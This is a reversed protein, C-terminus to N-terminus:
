INNLFEVEKFNFQKETGESLIVLQGNGTVDTITGEFQEDNHRYFAPQNFKYLGNIYNYQLMKFNGAKLKLYEAEINECIIALVEM